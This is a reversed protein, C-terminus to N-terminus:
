MSVGSNTSLRTPTISSMRVSRTASMHASATGQRQWRESM